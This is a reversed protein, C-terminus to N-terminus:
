MVADLSARQVIRRAATAVPEDVMRGGIVMVGGDYTDVILRASEVAEDSPSFALSVERVQSPHICLKGGFGLRAAHLADQALRAADLSATVGEFPPPLGAVASSLVMSSRAMLLAEHDDPDVGLHTGLDINGFALRTLGPAHAIDRLQAVGLPTEVLGVIPTGVPLLDRLMEVDDPHETKPAVVAAGIEAAMAVDDDHWRTGRPNIRVAISGAGRAWETVGSRAGDKAEAGVSDELDVIVIDAGSAVASDFRDPRTAPVFLASRALVLRGTGGDLTM